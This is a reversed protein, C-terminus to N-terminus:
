FREDGQPVHWHASTLGVGEFMARAESATPKCWGPALRGGYWVRALEAVQEIPVVEGRATGHRECWRDVSAADTFLLTNACFRHVNDWANAVPIPFHVVLERPTVIGADYRVECPEGEGGYTTVIRCPGPVLAAVGLACWTCPAWWGRAPGAVYFHTPTLSFPHVLWPELTGPHTVLGHNAVLRALSERVLAASSASSEALEDVSVPHGHEIVATLLLRHVTSDLSQWEPSPATTSM